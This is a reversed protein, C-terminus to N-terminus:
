PKMGTRVWQELMLFAPVTNGVGLQACHGYQPLRIQVLNAAKGATTVANLLSDEHFAPVIPDWMNHVTVTPRMLRGTPAYYKTLYQRAPIDMRYRNALTDWGQVIAPFYPVLGALPPPVPVVNGIQYTVGANDFPSKGNVLDTINNIGRAHFTLATILSTVTTQVQLQPMPIYPLPTQKVSALVFLSPLNMMVATQVAGANPTYNFPVGLTSGLLVGPYAADFLTRVHGLYQTEVLSGGVLGCLLLNGDYQSPYQEALSLSVASGLSYGVLYNRKPASRLVATALGRLQHTRQAGDKIAFGNISYSSYAVAYGRHGLWLALSDMYFENTLTVSDLADRIPHAMTVLDGNWTAPVFVRYLSGPGTAGSAIRQWPGSTPYEVTAAARSDTALPETPSVSPSDSACAAVVALTAGGFVTRRLFSALM